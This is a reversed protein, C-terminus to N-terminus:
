MNTQTDTITRIVSLYVFTTTKIMVFGIVVLVSPVLLLKGQYIFIKFKSSYKLDYYLVNADNNDDLQVTDASQIVCFYVRTCRVMTDYVINSM